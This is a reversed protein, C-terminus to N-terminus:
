ILLVVTRRNAVSFNPSSHTTFIAKYAFPSVFDFAPTLLIASFAKKSFRDSERTIKQGVATPSFFPLDVCPGCNDSDPQSETVLSFNLPNTSTESASKCRGTPASEVAVHGNSEFCLFLGSHGGAGILLSILTFLSIFSHLRCTSKM